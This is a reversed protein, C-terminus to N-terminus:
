VQQLGHNINALLDNPVIIGWLSCEETGHCNDLHSCPRCLWLLDKRM